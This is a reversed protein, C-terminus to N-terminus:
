DGTLLGEQERAVSWVLSEQRCPFREGMSRPQPHQGPAGPIPPSGRTEGGGWVCVTLNTLPKSAWGPDLRGLACTFSQGSVPEKEEGEKGQGGKTGLLWTVNNQQSLVHLCGM